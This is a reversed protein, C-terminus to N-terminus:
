RALVEKLARVRNEFLVNVRTEGRLVEVDRRQEDAIVRLVDYQFLGM